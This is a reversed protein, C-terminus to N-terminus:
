AIRRRQRTIEIHEARPIAEVTAWNQTMERHLARFEAALHDPMVSAGDTPRSVVAQQAHPHRELFTRVIDCFQAGAHDLEVGPARQRRLHEPEDNYVALRCATSFRERPTRAFNHGCRRSHQQQNVDADTTEMHRLHPLWTASPPRAFTDFLLDPEGPQCAIALWHANAGPESSTNQIYFCRHKSREPTENAPFVGRFQLPSFHAQGYTELETTSTTSSNRM